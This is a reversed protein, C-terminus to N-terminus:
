EKESRKLKWGFVLLVLFVAFLIMSCIAYTIAVSEFYDVFAGAIYLPYIVLDKTADVIGVVVAVVANMLSAGLVSCAVSRLVKYNKGGKLCLWVAIVVGATAFVVISAYSIIRVIKISNRVNTMYKFSIREKIYNVIDDCFSAVAENQSSNLVINDNALSKRVNSQLEYSYDELMGEFASENYQKSASLQGSVYALELHYMDDYSVVDYVFDDPINNKLCMDSAYLSADQRLAEVYNSTTFAKVFTNPNAVTVLLCICVSVVAISVYLLFSLKDRIKRRSMM